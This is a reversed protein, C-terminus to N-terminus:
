FFEKRYVLYPLRWMKWGFICISHMLIAYPLFHFLKRGFWNEFISMRSHINEIDKNKTCNKIHPLDLKNKGWVVM